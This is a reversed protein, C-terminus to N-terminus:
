REPEAHTWEAVDNLEAHPQETRAHPGNPRAHPREAHPQGPTWGHRGYRRADVHKTISEHSYKADTLFRKM